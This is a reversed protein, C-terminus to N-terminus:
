RGRAPAPAAMSADPGPRRTRPTLDEAFVRQMMHWDAPNLSVAHVRVLVQSDNPAPKPRTELRLVSPPGYECHVYGRMGAAPMAAGPQPCDNSSRVYSVAGWAVGVVLLLLVLKGVLRVAKALRGPNRAM